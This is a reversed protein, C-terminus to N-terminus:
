IEGRFSKAVIESKSHVQLKRYINKAHTKITGVTIGMNAAIMKYSLGDVIGAIVEREKNTLNNESQKPINAFHNIVKRAISSSMQSGGNYVDIIAEKIKEIPTNKLLYGSVGSSIAQFIKESDDHITLIIIETDPLKEKISKIADLGSIGPLGIDLLIVDPSINIELEKFFEEVSGVSIKCLFEQRNNLYEIMIDRINKVDEIVAISIM